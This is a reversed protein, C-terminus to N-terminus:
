GSLARPSQRGLRPSVDPTGRLEDLRTGLLTSHLCGGAPFGPASGPKHKQHLRPLTSSRRFCLPAAGRRMSFTSTTPQDSPELGARHLNLGSYERRWGYYTHDTVGIEKVAQGVSKGNAVAVDVQRLKSLIQEPTHGKRPM